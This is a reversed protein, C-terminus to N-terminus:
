SENKLEKRQNEIDVAVRWMNIIAFEKEEFEKVLKPSHKKYCYFERCIIPRAEYVLCKKGNFYPCSLKQQMVLMQKEPKINNKIVYEQLKDIDEQCIPLFNGCCEGCRSCEGCVSFDQIKYKEPNILVELLNTKENNKGM